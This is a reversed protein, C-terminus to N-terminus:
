RGLELVRYPPLVALQGYRTTLLGVLEPYYNWAAALPTDAASCIVALRPPVAALSAALAAGEARDPRGPFFYDHPGAPRREAVFPVMGCAPFVLVAEDPPLIRVLQAADEVARLPARGEPEIVLRAAGLHVQVLRGESARALVSATPMFRVGAVLCPLAVVLAGVSLGTRPVLAAAARWLRLALPLLLVGLPMLHAFDARPYLQLSGMVALATPAV